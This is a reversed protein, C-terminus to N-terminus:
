ILCRQWVKDFTKMKAAVNGFKMEFNALEIVSFTQVINTSVEEM